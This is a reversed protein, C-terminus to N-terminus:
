QVSTRDELALELTLSDIYEMDIGLPIGHAIRTIKIDKNEFIKSIYLSTTEGEIGPQLALIIEKINEKKIRDILLNIKVDEPNKGDLPSILGDIVHYLGNYSGLKEFIVVNKPSEVVCLTNKDRDQLKCIECIDGECLNNCIKCRGIKTKIDTFSKSFLNTIDSDLNLTALAYREATKEGIGPLKKFCEILNEITRPYKM